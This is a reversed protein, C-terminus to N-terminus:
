QRGPVNAPLQITFLTAPVPGGVHYTYMGLPVKVQQAVVDAGAFKKRYLDSPLYKPKQTMHQRNFRSM